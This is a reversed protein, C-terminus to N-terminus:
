KAKSLTTLETIGKGCVFLCQSMRSTICYGCHLVMYDFNDSSEM